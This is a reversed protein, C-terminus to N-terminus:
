YRSTAKFGDSLDDGRATVGPFMLHACPLPADWCQDGEVPTLITLSEDIYLPRTEGTSVKPPLFLYQRLRPQTVIKGTLIILLILTIALISKYVIGQSLLPKFIRIFFLFFGIVLYGYAFRPDPASIFWYALAILM